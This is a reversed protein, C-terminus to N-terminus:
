SYTAFIEVPLLKVLAIQSYAFYNSLTHLEICFVLIVPAIGITFVKFSMIHYYLYLFITSITCLRVNNYM